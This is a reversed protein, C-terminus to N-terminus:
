PHVTCLVPVTGQMAGRGTLKVEKSALVEIEVAEVCVARQMLGYNQMSNTLKITDSVEPGSM